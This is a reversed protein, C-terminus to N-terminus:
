VCVEYLGERVTAVSIADDIDKCGVPDISFIVPAPAPAPMVLGLPAPASVAKRLAKNGKLLGRLHARATADALPDGSEGIITECQGRPYKQEVTWELYSAIAYVYSSTVASRAVSSAVMMPPYRADLPRFMYIAVGKSNLGYKQKDDLNLVGVIRDSRRSSAVIRTVLGDRMCVTDGHWSRNLAGLGGMFPEGGPMAAQGDRANLISIVAITDAATATAVVPEYDEYYRMYINVLPYITM